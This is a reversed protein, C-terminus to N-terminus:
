LIGGCGGGKKSAINGSVGSYFEPKQPPAFADMPFEVTDFLECPKLAEVEPCQEPICFGNSQVTLNVIRFLKIITFLGITVKVSTPTIGDTPDYNIEADLAVAKAEVLVFPEDQSILSNLDPMDSTVVLNGCNSSGFLTVKKTFSSEVPVPDGIPNGSADEFILDYTFTYRLTIDWYGNKCLSPEKKVVDIASIQLDEVTVSEATGPPEVISGDDAARARNIEICDQQRCSDYVKNAVICEERLKKEVQCEVESTQVPNVAGRPERSNYMNNLEFAAM